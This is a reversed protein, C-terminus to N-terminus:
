SPEEGRDSGAIWSILAAPVLLPLLIFRSIELVDFLIPTKQRRLLNRVASPLMMPFNVITSQSGAHRVSIPHSKRFGVGATVEGVTCDGVGLTVRTPGWPPEGIGQLPPAGAPGRPGQESPM